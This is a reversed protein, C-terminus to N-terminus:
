SPSPAVTAPASPAASPAMSPSAAPTPSAASTPSAAPSPSTAPSGSAVPSASARPTPSTAPAATLSPAVTPSPEQTPQADLLGGRGGVLGYLLIVVFTGTILAVWLKSVPDDVHPVEDDPGHVATAPAGAAAARKRDEAAIGRATSETVVARRRRGTLRESARTEPFPAEPPAVEADRTELDSGAATTDADAALTADSDADTAATLSEDLEGGTPEVLEDDSRREGTM